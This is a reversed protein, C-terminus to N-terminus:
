IITEFNRLLSEKDRWKVEAFQNLEENLTFPLYLSLSSLSLLLKSHFSKHVSRRSKHEVISDLLCRLGHKSRDTFWLTLYSAAAMSIAEM